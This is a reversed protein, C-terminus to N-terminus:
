WGRPGLYGMRFGDHAAAEAPTGLELTTGATCWTVHDAAALLAPVEHGTVVVACGDAALARFIATLADHDVPAIHRYPEDALLCAPRRAIALALEARRLEGGSIAAPRRGMLDTVNARRAAETATCQAYRREFFGLQEGITFTSSLIDHDPLYFVGRAALDPLTARLLATGGVHVVGSDPQIRGAAIKVLTSKGSGNRGFIVRIEGPRARLSASTLVRTTGFSKTVCDAVLFYV